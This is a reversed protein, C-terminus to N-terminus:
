QNNNNNNEQPQRSTLGLSRFWIEVALEVISTHLHEPLDCSINNDSNSEDLRVKVPMRVYTISLAGVDENVGGTFLAIDFNKDSHGNVLSVIPYDRSARNLYDNLTQYVRESEILRCDVIKDNKYKAVFNTVCLPTKTLNIHVVEGDHNVNINQTETCFLTHFTNFQSIKTYQPTRVDKPVQANGLVSIRVTQIIAENLLEDISESLIGRMLQLGQQQGLTRFLVHMAYIDM